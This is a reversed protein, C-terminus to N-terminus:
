RGAAVVPVGPAASLAYRALACGVVASADYPAARRDYLWAGAAPKRRVAKVADTLRVDDEHVIRPGGVALLADHFSGSAAAVERAGLALVRAALPARPPIVAFAPGSADVAMGVPFYKRQLEDLRDLCWETGPRQDVVAVATGEDTPWAATITAVTRDLDVELAFAVPMGAPAGDELEPRTGDGWLTLPIATVNNHTWVNLYERRFTDLSGASVAAEYRARLATENITRGYAPISAAWVAPDAPDDDVDAGWHFFCVTDTRGAEVFAQGLAHKEALYVAADTGVNSTVWLQHNPRTIMTPLLAGELTDDPHALSEDLMCLDLTSGRGATSTTNLATLRSGNRFSVQTDGASRRVQALRRRVQVPAQELMPVQDELLKRRASTGDQATYAARQPYSWLPELGAIAAGLPDLRDLEIVLVLLTKGCQRGVSVIAWVYALHGDEHELAM